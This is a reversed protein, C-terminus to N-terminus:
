GSSPDRGRRYLPDLPDRYPRPGAPGTWTRLDPRLGSRVRPSRRHPPVPVAAPAATHSSCWTPRSLSRDPGRGSFQSRRPPLSTYVRGVSLSGGVGRERACRTCRLSRSGVTAATPIVAHTWPPREVDRPVVEGADNGTWRWRFSPGASPGRPGLFLSSGRDRRVGAGM